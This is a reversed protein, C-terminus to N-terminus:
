RLVKINNDTLYSIIKDRTNPSLSELINTLKLKASDIKKEKIIYTLTVLYAISRQGGSLTNINRNLGINYDLIRDIDKIILQETDKFSWINHLILEDKVKNSIFEHNYTINLYSDMEM